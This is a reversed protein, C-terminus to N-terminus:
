NNTNNGIKMRELNVKYVSTNRHNQSKGLDYAKQYNKRALGLQHNKEYAEGLSDYVNSSIPNRKINEKFVAIADDFNSVQLYAYGLANLVQETAGLELGYKEKLANYHKDIAKLGTSFTEPPLQWDAFVFRLGNYLGPYPITAHNEKKLMEYEFHISHDCKKKVLSSFQALADFYDPENGVTQYFYKEPKYEAKLKTEAEKVLYDAKFHLYPSIAIFGDFLEPKTLLAYTAFTGGFSHGMLLSFNSARFNKHIYPTLEKDIFDLFKEAGGSTPIQEDHVPSFDRNRDVNHIAIVITQPIIDMNSLFNVAGCAHQFHTRGDLLYLIPYHHESFEYTNPLYITFTRYENLIKSHVTVDQGHIVELGQQAKITNAITLGTILLFFHIFMIQPIPSKSKM